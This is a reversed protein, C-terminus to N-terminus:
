QTVDNLTREGLKEQRDVDLAMQGSEAYGPRMRERRYRRKMISQAVEICERWGGFHRSDNLWITGIRGIRLMVRFGRIQHGRLGKIGAELTLGCQQELVSKPSSSGGTQTLALCIETTFTTTFSRSVPRGTSYRRGRRQSSSQSAIVRTKTSPGRSTSCPRDPIM